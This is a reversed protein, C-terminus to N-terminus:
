EGVAKGATGDARRPKVATNPIPVPTAGPSYDGPFLPNARRASKAARRALAYRTLCALAHYSCHHSDDRLIFDLWDSM